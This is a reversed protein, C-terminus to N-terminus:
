VRGQPINEIPEAYNILLKLKEGRYRDIALQYVAKIIQGAQFDDQASFYAAEFFAGQGRESLYALKLRLHAERFRDCSHVIFKNCFCPAPMNEGWPELFEIRRAFDLNIWDEALEADFFIKERPLHEGFKEVFAANLNAILVPYFERSVTLGAAMAHGGFVIEGEPFDSTAMELLESINVGLVSRLSCKIKEPNATPTGVLAPKGYNQKLKSAVIGIVGENGDPILAATIKDQPNKKDAAHLYKQHATKGDDSNIGARIRSIQEKAQMTMQSEIAKRERNLRDLEMAYENATARDSCVLLRVGDSMDQLRGVANLRPALSFAIDMPSIFKEQVKSINCLASIGVSARGARILELGGTALIRNNYDLSVLDAITGLAVLDLFDTLTPFNKGKDLYIRRLCLLVYFAVGVGALNTSPFSSTALKPNVIALAQPLENNAAPEHHDTIILDINLSALYEAALVSRTGNDVTIVLDPLQRNRSKQQRVFEDIGLVSLGYGHEIRNPIFFGVKAGLKRLVKLMLATSTAGDADYDGYILINKGDAIAQYIIEAARKVDPLGDPKHLYRIHKVIENPNDLRNAYIERIIPLFDEPLTESFIKKERRVIQPKLRNM